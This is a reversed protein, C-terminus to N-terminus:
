NVNCCLNYKSRPSLEVTYEAELNDFTYAVSNQVVAIAILPDSQKVFEFVFKDTDAIFHDRNENEIEIDNSPYIRVVPDEGLYILDKFDADDFVSSVATQLLNFVKSKSIRTFNIEHDITSSKIRSNM